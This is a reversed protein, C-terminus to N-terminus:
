GQIHLTALHEQVKHKLTVGIPIKHAGVWIMNSDYQTIKNMNVLYSRHVRLFNGTNLQETLASLAQNVVVTANGTVLKSYITYAQFYMIDDYAFRETKRGTKLFFYNSSAPKPSYVVPPVPLSFAKQPELIKGQSPGQPMLARRFARFFRSYVLPKTLFDQIDYDFSDVAYKPHSSLAVTPFRQPLLRLLDLGSMDPLEIDLLLFDFPQDRAASIAQTANRCIHPKEFVGTQDLFSELQNVIAADDEVILTRYKM